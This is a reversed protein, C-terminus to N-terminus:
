RWADFDKVDSNGWALPYNLDAILSDAYVPLNRMFEYKERQQADATTSCFLMLVMASGFKMWTLKRWFGELPGPQHRSFWSRVFLYQCIVMGAGVMVVYTIGM